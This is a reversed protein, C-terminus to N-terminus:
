DYDSFYWARNHGHRLLLSSALATDLDKQTQNSIWAAAEMSAAWTASWSKKALGKDFGALDKKWKNGGVESVEIQMWKPGTINEYHM